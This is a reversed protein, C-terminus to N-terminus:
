SVVEAPLEIVFRAGHDGDTRDEVWVRGRHLRVHENVLALGLGAGDGTGRRGAGAGRAFREFVLEREQPPVGLGHDEVAILVLEPPLGDSAAAEVEVEVPGGGGHIRANDLLNTVVRALRRKDARMVMDEAPEKVTLTVDEAGSFAVAQRVFEAVPVDDLNLRVAGADFRSIELLDEVLGQFRAVDAVLLDLAQGARESLEDRRAQLVSVSASLTMLPSRLEHSVDSAFRADREVRLQLAAAMDNFSSVLAELDKDDVDELRTDLRGGAIAMAAQAAASIPRVARGSAWMGLLVGLLTTLVAAGILTYGVSRLSNDLEDLSVIEFYAADVSPLPVGVALVAGGRLGYRQKAAIGTSAVRDRLASPLSDPGYEATLATWSSRYQVLPHSSTTTPLSALLPQLNPQASQLSDRVQRANTFTQTVVLNERQRLLTSRTIAYTTGALLVSLVMAGLAFTFTIRARLGM